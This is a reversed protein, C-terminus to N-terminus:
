DTLNKANIKEVFYSHNFVKNIPLLVLKSTRNDGGFIYGNKKLYFEVFIKLKDTPILIISPNEVDKEWLIFSWYHATTVRIGSPKGRSEIEVALNGTVSWKRDTKVEVKVDTLIKKLKNEWKLGFELDKKFDIDYEKTHKV